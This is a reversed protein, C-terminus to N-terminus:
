RAKKPRTWKVRFRLQAEAGDTWAPELDCSVIVPTGVPVPQLEAALNSLLHRDSDEIDFYLLKGDSAIISACLTQPGGQLPGLYRGAIRKMPTWEEHRRDDVAVFAAPRTLPNHVIVVGVPHTAPGREPGARRRLLLEAEDQGLILRRAARGRELLKGLRPQRLDFHGHLRRGKLTVLHHQPPMQEWAESPLRADLSQLRLRNEIQEHSFQLGLPLSTVAERPVRNPAHVRREPHHQLPGDLRPQQIPVGGEAQALIQLQLVRKVRTPSNEFGLRAEIALLEPPEQAGRPSHGRHVHREKLGEGKGAHPHALRQTKLPRVHVDLPM